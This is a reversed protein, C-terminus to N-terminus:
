AIEINELNTVEGIVILAPHTIQHDNALKQLQSLPGKVIKMNPLSANQILAAPTEPKGCKISEEIIYPLNKMGMYIVLTTKSQLALCIDRSLSGDKKTGTIMWLGESVGRHTLPIDCLGIALMSTIGPIYSAKIGLQRAFMIEEMGRGFIFPDGGKLRVVIENNAAYHKILEHITEQTTYEQYPTKGVYVLECDSKAYDLLERNALNDYLIVDAVKLAKIAKLTILEPDGPGAGVIILQSEVKNM